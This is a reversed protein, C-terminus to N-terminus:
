TNMYKGTKGHIGTLLVLHYYWRLWHSSLIVLQSKVLSALPLFSVLKLTLKWNGKRWKTIDPLLRLFYHSGPTLCYYLVSLFCILVPHGKSLSFTKKNWSSQLIHINSPQQAAGWLSVLGTSAWGWSQLFLGSDADSVDTIEPHPIKCTGTDRLLSTMLVWSGLGTLWPPVRWTSDLYCFWRVLVLELLRPGLRM